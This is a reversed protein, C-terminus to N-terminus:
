AVVRGVSSCLVHLVVTCVHLTCYLVHIYLVTCSTRVKAHIVEELSPKKLGKKAGSQVMKEVRKHCYHAYVEM